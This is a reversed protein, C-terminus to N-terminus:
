VLIQRSRHGSQRRCCTELVIKRHDPPHPGDSMKTLDEQVGNFHKTLRRAWKKCALIICHEYRRENGYIDEYVEKKLWGYSDADGKKIWNFNIAREQFEEYNLYDPCNGPGLFNGNFYDTFPPNTVRGFGDGSSDSFSSLFENEQSEDIAEIDFTEGELNQMCLMDGTNAPMFKKTLFRKNFGNAELDTPCLSVMFTVTIEGEIQHLDNYNKKAIANALGYFGRYTNDDRLTAPTVELYLKNTQETESSQIKEHDITNKRSDNDFLTNQDVIYVLRRRYFKM